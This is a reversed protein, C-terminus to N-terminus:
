SLQRGYGQGWTGCNMVGANSTITDGSGFKAERRRYQARGFGGDEPLIENRRLAEKM